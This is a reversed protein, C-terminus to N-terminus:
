SRSFIPVCAGAQMGVMGHRFDRTSPAENLQQMERKTLSPPCVAVTIPRTPGSQIVQLTATDFLRGGARKVLQRAVEEERTNRIAALTFFIGEFLRDEPVTRPPLVHRPASPPRAAGLYVCLLM